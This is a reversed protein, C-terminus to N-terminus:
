QRSLAYRIARGLSYLMLAPIGVLSLQGFPNQMFVKIAHEVGSSQGHLMWLSVFVWIGALAVLIWYLAWGWRDKANRDRAKAVTTLLERRLKLNQQLQEELDGLESRLRLKEQLQEEFDNTASTMGVSGSGLDAGLSGIKDSGLIM